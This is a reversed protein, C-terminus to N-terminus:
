ESIKDTISIDVPIKIRKKIGDPMEFEVDIYGKLKTFKDNLKIEIGLNQCLM